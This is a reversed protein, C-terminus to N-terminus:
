VRTFGGVVRAQHHVSPSAGLWLSDPRAIWWGSGGVYGSIWVMGGDWKGIMYRLCRSSGATNSAKRSGKVTRTSPVMRQTHAPADLRAWFHARQTPPFTPQKHASRSPRRHQARLHGWLQAPSSWPQQGNRQTHQVMPSLETTAQAGLNRGAKTQRAILPKTARATRPNPFGRFPM